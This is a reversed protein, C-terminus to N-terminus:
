ASRRRGRARERSRALEARQRDFIFRILRQRDASAIEAFVVGREGAATRVVRARGEVPPEGHGIEFTFTLEAGEELEELGRLRM